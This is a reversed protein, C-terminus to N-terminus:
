SVKNSVLMKKIDKKNIDIPYKTKHFASKKIESDDFNLIAKSM